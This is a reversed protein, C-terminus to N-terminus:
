AMARLRTNLENPRSSVSSAGMTASPGAMPAVGSPSCPWEAPSRSGAPGCPSRRGSPQGPPKRSRRLDMSALAQQLITATPPPTFDGLVPDAAAPHRPARRHERHPATAPLQDPPGQGPRRPGRSARGCTTPRSTITFSGDIRTSLGKVIMVRGHRGVRPSRRAGIPCRWAWTAAPERASIGEGIMFPACAGAWHWAPRFAGSASVTSSRAM